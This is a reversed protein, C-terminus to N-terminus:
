IASISELMVEVVGGCVMGEDEAAEMTMDVRCIQFKPRGQRMMLLAKQMIESEVCGGGITDVTTGDEMILMKTGVDRPASGKRSIITALVKQKGHLTGATEQDKRCDEAKREKLAGDSLAELLEKSYGASKERSNKVQIIEAMVSVAIEEPTQAGIKLGIPTHVAELVERAIGRVELQDKVIAVRRRSGMMGVYAYTKGLIAELCETDYRHGRTVIVFWTDSDGPIESLGEAFPSCLVRNAGAARANDAFKPRDELVTVTFGLMKGMRVIPM